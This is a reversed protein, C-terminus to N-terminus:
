IPSFISYRVWIDVLHALKKVLVLIIGLCLFSLSCFFIRSFPYLGSGSLRTCQGHQSTSCEFFFLFRFIRILSALIIRLVAFARNLSECNVVNFQTKKVRHQNVFGHLVISKGVAIVLSVECCIKWINGRYTLTIFAGKDSTFFDAWKTSM